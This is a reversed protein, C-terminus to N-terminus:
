EVRLAVSPDVHSARAVPRYCALFLTVGISVAGVGIVASLPPVGVGEPIFTRTAFLQHGAYFLATGIAFGVVSVTASGRLSEGLVQVPTGGLALRIAIDRVRVALGHSVVGHFGAAMLLLGVGALFAVALTLLPRAGIATWVLDPFTGAERVVLDPTDVALVANMSQLTRGTGSRAQAIFFVQSTAFSQAAATLRGLDGLLVYVEPLADEFLDKHRVSRVVGRVQWQRDVLKIGSGVQTEGSMLRALAGNIILRDHGADSSSLVSGAILPIGSVDFYGASIVRVRVMTGEARGALWVTTLQDHGSLPLKSTFAAPVGTQIFRALALEYRQADATPSAASTRPSVRMWVLDTRTFGVSERLVGQLALLLWVAQMALAAVLGIQVSLAVAEGFRRRGPRRVRRVLDARRTERLLLLTAPASAIVAAGASTLLALLMAQYTLGVESARPLAAGGLAVAVKLMSWAVLAAFPVALVGLLAAETLGTAVIVNPAAGLMEMTAFVHKDRRLRAAVLWGVNVCALALVLVAGIQTVVLPTRITSTLEELLSRFKLVVGSTAGAVDSLRSEAARPTTGPALRALVPGSWSHVGVSPLPVWYFTNEDPFWFSAPMVGIVRYPMSDAYLTDGIDIPAGIRRSIRESVVVVPSTTPQAHEASFGHGRLPRVGLVDFFSPSAVLGRTRPGEENRKVSISQDLGGYRFVGSVTSRERELREVDGGALIQRGSPDAGNWVRILQEPSPFNLPRVLIAYSLSYTACVVGAAVSLTLVIGAIAGPSRVIRRSGFRIAQLM